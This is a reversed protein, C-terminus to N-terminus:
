VVAPLTYPQRYERTLLKDAEPDRVFRETKPDFNLSRGLKYSINGLHCLAASMHGELIDAYLDEVNRSRMCAIFNEFHGVKPEGAESIEPGPSYSAKPFSADAAAENVAGPDPNPPRQRPTFTGKFAKWGGGSTLYGESTYWTNWGDAPPAYLNTLEYDLLTRDPYEFTGLQVNPTEQDSDWVYYGGTSHIKVPHDRRGLGWRALDLNHVGSNGVDTTSTDWFFHWGYHFRNQTFPQYRSPGLYLDWHVGKPISSEKVRGISSRPKVIDVKARYVKGFRGENLLRMAARVRPECRLNMGAQVIRKYKRAAEVCRRGELVTFSVPKEVYVDKGAQCAWITMLAHWYDPTAISVADIDKRELLKRIDVETDPRNGGLKEVLSVADPFLREDVDCLAAVRVGPMKAFTQIHSRGRGHFGVVAINIRENAGGQAMATRIAPAAAAAKIFNRRNTDQM